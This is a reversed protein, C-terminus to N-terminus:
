VKIIKLLNTSGVTGSLGSTIVIFDGQKIYKRDLSTELVKNILTDSGVLSGVLMSHVGRHLLVGRAAWENPTVALVPCKPKHKAIKRATIGTHTFVIILSAKVDFSAKVACSAIAEEPTWLLQEQDKKLSLETQILLEHDQYRKVYNLHKETEFCIESM